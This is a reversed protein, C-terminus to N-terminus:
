MGELANRVPMAKLEKEGVRAMAGTVDSKKQIGYGVVVVEDLLENDEELTVRLTTKGKVSVEQTKYGVFSIKLTAEDPVNKLVFKGDFDTISGNATGKVAVSAGIVAEGAKDVVLGSVTKGQAHLGTSVIFLLLALFLRQGM